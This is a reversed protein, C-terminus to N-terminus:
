DTEELILDFGAGLDTNAVSSIGTMKIIAPGEIKLFPAYNREGHSNGATNLGSIDYILGRAVDLPLGLQLNKNFHM